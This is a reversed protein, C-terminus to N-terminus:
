LFGAQNDGEEGFKLRIRGNVSGCDSELTAAGFDRPLLGEEVFIVVWM